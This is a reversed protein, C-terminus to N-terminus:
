FFCSKGVFERLISTNPIDDEKYIDDFYNLFDILRKSINFEPIEPTITELLPKAYKKLVALEYILASNFMIDANEQYPFINKDEGARVDPWQKITKLADAGRFQNDRVIRRILRAATTPIRNHGDIALQTLASIYIKYKMNDPIAKTLEDNLGHIGEIIIPQNKELKVRHNKWERYGTTFNYVPIEVEEGNFLALLHKNFLEVDLAYLSEFDYDGKETKPTKDRDLFYDDLSIPMPNMGNVLLQIRLRQAFTTKGSSSPGAILILRLSQAEEAIHDAIQAIKKEHLAESIRILESIKGHEIHENLNIVYNCKLINAWRDAESLIMSLKRQEMEEPVENPAKKLPTRLIMGPSHFDLAFKDLLETNYLMPGYLYDYYGGCYYLSVFEQELSEILKAKEIQQCERFLAVADERPLLVKLIDKKKGIIERMKAEIAIVTEATVDDKPLLECYIGNNVSHEVVIEKDPYLYNAAAMMIFLISRQYAQVGDEQTMDIFEVKANPPIDTQLDRVMNNIKVATILVNRKEQEAKAMTILPYDKKYQM